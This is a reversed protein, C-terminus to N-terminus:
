AAVEEPTYPQVFAAGAIVGKGALTRAIGLVKPWSSSLLFVARDGAELLTGDGADLDLANERELIRRLLFPERWHRGRAIDEALEGALVMPRRRDDLAAISGRQWAFLAAGHRGNAYAGTVPLGLMYGVWVHAAEHLAILERDTV